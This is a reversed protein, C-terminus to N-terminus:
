SAKQPARKKFKFLRRKQQYGVQRYMAPPYKLNGRNFKLFSKKQPKDKIEACAKEIKKADKVKDKLNNGYLWEDSIMADATPKINKNLQPTIFSKRAVSQQYFVDTLVQGAHSLYDMFTDEDLGDEPPDILMSVAVGLAALATGVCNQTELFHQDRKKTIDSLLPIIELNVKPAETYLDEKRNYLELLEQKNKAPLGQKIWKSWADLLEPHYKVEKFKSENLDVGLVKLVNDRLTSEKPIDNTSHQINGEVEINSDRSRSISDDVEIVQADDIAVDTSHDHLKQEPQVHVLTEM